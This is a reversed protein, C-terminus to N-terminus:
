THYGFANTPVLNANLFDFHLMCILHEGKNCQEAWAKVLIQNGGCAGGTEQDKRGNMRCERVTARQYRMMMRYEDELAIISRSRSQSLVERSAV